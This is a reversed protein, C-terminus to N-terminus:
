ANEVMISVAITEVLRRLMAEYSGELTEPRGLSDLTVPLVPVPEGRAALASALVADGREQLRVPVLLLSTTDDPIAQVIETAEADTMWNGTIPPLPTVNFGHPELLYAAGGDVTAVMRLDPPVASLTTAMYESLAAYRERALTSRERYVTAFAPDISVLTETVRDLAFSWLAPDLWVAPPVAGEAADQPVLRDAPIGDAVGVVDAVDAAVEFFHDLGTEVGMGHGFTVDAGDLLSSATQPPRYTVPDAGPPIVQRIEVADGAVDRVLGSVLSTTTVM